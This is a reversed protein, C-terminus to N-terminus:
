CVAEDRDIDTTVDNIFLSFLLPRLVIGQNKFLENLHVRYGVIKFLKSLMAGQKCMSNGLMMVVIHTACFPAPGM